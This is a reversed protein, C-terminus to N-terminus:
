DKVCRVSLGLKKFDHGKGSYSDGFFLYWFYSNQASYETSSWWICQYGIDDFDGTDYRGGGPLGTFGSENTAGANPFIWHSIGAEKLKGGAINEIGLSTELMAWEGNTPVHWGIPCIKRNDTVVFWTYLRGYAAVNQEDGEYAWVYKPNSENSIDLTAPTTTGILDGNRYHITKLNEAMWEITGIRITKYTNGENDNVSGYFLDTNFIIVSDTKVKRNGSASKDSVILLAKGSSVPAFPKEKKCSHIILASTILALFGTVKFCYKLFQFYFIFSIKTKGPICTFGVHKSLNIIM